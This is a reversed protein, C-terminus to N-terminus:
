QASYLLPAYRSISDNSHPIQGTASWGDSDRVLLTGKHTAAVVQGDLRCWGVAVEEPTPSNARHLRPQDHCEFLAHDRDEEWSTSSAPAGGAYVVGDAMFSERFYRQRHGEDLRIWTQGTDESAYLGSGTSAILTNADGRELHHIDDTHPADHGTIRRDNWTTGGDDSVYVGGVEIGVILRNPADPDTRVSRIKSRGDHRPIGWDHRRKLERFGGVEEWDGEATPLGSDIPAVYLMSPETGAYLLPETPHENVALVQEAPVPIQAWDVGNDSHHLGSGSTVLVGDHAQLPHIRWVEEAALTRQISADEDFLSEIRYLGDYAGALLM